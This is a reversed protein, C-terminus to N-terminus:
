NGGPMTGRPRPNREKAIQADIADHNTALKAAERAITGHGDSNQWGLGLKSPNSGAPESRDVVPGSTGQCWGIEQMCSEPFQHKERPGVRESNISRRFERAQPGTLGAKEPDFRAQKRTPDVHGPKFEGPVDPVSVAARISFVGGM